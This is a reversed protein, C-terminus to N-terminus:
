KVDQKSLNVGPAKLMNGELGWKKMIRAYTGNDFLKQLADRMVGTLPSGKPLVMGQFLDPFGNKAGTGALTVAGNTKAALWTLPAQSSFFADARRSRVALLSSPQDTYSQVQVEPKGVQTCRVSQQKIVKEASGASMVAIRKGCTDDLSNIRLPNGSSVAFAVFEQVYDVFDNSTQREPFDGIPGMDIQYRGGRIGSLAGSLGSVTEHHIKIGLLQGLAEALDAAAGDLSQADNIIAYPPFTGSNVATMVGSTQIEKPLRARLATDVTQAPIGAAVVAHMCSASLVLAMAVRTFSHIIM